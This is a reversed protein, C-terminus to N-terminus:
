IKPRDTTKPVITRGNAIVELNVFQTL